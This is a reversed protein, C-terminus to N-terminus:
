RPGNGTLACRDYHRKLSDQRSFRNMCFCCQFPKESLHAPAHRHFLSSRPMIQSCLSCKFTSDRLKIPRLNKEELLDHYRAIQVAMSDVFKRKTEHSPPKLKRAIYQQRKSESETLKREALPPGPHPKLLNGKEEFQSSDVAPLRVMQTQPQPPGMFTGYIPGNGCSPSITSMQPKQSGGLSPALAIPMSSLGQKSAEDPPTNQLSPASQPAGLPVPVLMSGTPGMVTGMLIPVPQSHSNGSSCPQQPANKSAALQQSEGITNSSQPVTPWAVLFFMPQVPAGDQPTTQSQLPMLQQPFQCQQSQTPHPVNVTDASGKMNHAVNCQATQEPAEEPKSQANMPHGVLKRLHVATPPPPGLSGM